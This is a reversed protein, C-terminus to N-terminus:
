KVANHPVLPWAFLPHGYMARLWPSQASPGRDAFRSCCVAACAGVHRNQRAM